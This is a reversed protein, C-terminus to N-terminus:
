ECGEQDGETTEEVLTIEHAALNAGLITLDYGVQVIVPIYSRKCVPGWSLSTNLEM